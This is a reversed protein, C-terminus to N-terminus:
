GHGTIPKLEKCASSWFKENDFFSHRTTEIADSPENWNLSSSRSNSRINFNSGNNKWTNMKLIARFLGYLLYSLLMTRETMLSFDWFEAKIYQGLSLMLAEIQSKATIVESVTLFSRLIRRRRHCRSRWFLLLNLNPFCCSQVNIM